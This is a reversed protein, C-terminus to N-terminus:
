QNRVGCISLCTNDSKLGLVPIVTYALQVTNKIEIIIDSLYMMPIDRKADYFIKLSCISNPDYEHGQQLKAVAYNLTERM